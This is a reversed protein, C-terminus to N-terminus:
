LHHLVAPRNALPQFKAPIAENPFHYPDPLLAPILLILTFGAWARV